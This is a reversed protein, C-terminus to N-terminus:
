PFVGAIRLAWGFAPAARHADPAALGGEAGWRRATGSLVVSCVGQAGGGGEEGSGIRAAGDPMWGTASTAEGVFAGTQRAEAVGGQWVEGGGDERM